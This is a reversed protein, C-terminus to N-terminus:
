ALAGSGAARIPRPIADLYAALRAAAYRDYGAFVEDGGDGNLAVTVHQRTLRSLHYTPVASSDAFPEGYHRVLLPLVDLESPGVVFEHHETDFTRAVRRAHELESFGSEEFGISFTRVRPTSRAMLAVVASSDVGGSLFAGVPVDAVMRRAVARELLRLLETAAEAEGIRLTGPAPPTWYPLARTGAEDHVLVHAPPVKQIGEFADLPAPVYGLRLYRRVADLSVGPRRELAALLAGHESAFAIGDATRHYLLPKKGQRDRALVLRRRRTDWVALAFMGDLHEVFREGHDEYLHVIVETDSSATAFRHGRAALGERLETFNYIEGNFVTWVTGDENSQPQDGTALDIVRLRRVGLAAHEDVHEGSADPGRHTLRDRMVRMRSTDPRGHGVVIGAIGCM